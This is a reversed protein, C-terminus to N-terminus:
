RSQSLGRFHFSGKFILQDFDPVVNEEALAGRKALGFARDGVRVQSVRKGTEAITWNWGPFSPMKMASWPIAEAPRRKVPNVLLFHDDVAVGTYGARMGAKMQIRAPNNKRTMKEMFQSLFVRCCRVFDSKGHAFVAPEADSLGQTALGPFDFRRGSLAWM